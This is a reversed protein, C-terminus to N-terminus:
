PSPSKIASYTPGAYSISLFGKWKACRSAEPADRGPM